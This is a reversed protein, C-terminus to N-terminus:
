RFVENLSAMIAIEVFKKPAQKSWGNNLREIYPTNNAILLDKTKLERITLSESSRNAPRSSRVSYSTDYQGNNAAVFLWNARANGTDVPTVRTLRKDLQVGVKQKIEAVEGILEDAIGKLSFSVSM